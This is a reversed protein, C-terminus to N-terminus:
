DTSALHFPRVTIKPASRTRHKPYPPYCASEAVIDQRFLFLLERKGPTLSWDATWLRSPIFGCQAPGLAKPKNEPWLSLKLYLLVLQNKM